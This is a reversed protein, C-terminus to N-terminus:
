LGEAVHTHEQSQSPPDSDVEMSAGSEEEPTAEKEAKRAKGFIGSPKTWDEEMLTLLPARREACTDM